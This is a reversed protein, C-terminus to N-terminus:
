RGLAGKMFAAFQEAPDSPTRAGNGSSGQSRDPAPRRPGSDTPKGLHPKRELLGALDREIAAADVGGDDAVYQGLDLFAHADEPDAFTQAALAKVESKVARQRAEVLRQEVESLRGSLRETETKKAEEAERAQQALPELEKARTRYKAAEGRLKEIEKRAADPDAWPDKQPEPAPETGAPPQDQAPTTPEDSM